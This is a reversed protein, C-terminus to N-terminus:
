KELELNINDDLITLPHIEYNFKLWLPYKVYSDYFDPSKNEKFYKKAKILLRKRKENFKDSDEAIFYVQLVVYGYGINNWHSYYTKNYIYKYEIENKIIFEDTYKEKIQKSCLASMDNGIEKLLSEAEYKKKSAKKIISIMLKKEM